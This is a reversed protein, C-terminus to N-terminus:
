YPEDDNSEDRNEDKYVENRKSYYEGPKIILIVAPCMMIIDVAGSLYVKGQVRECSCISFIGGVVDDIKEADARKGKYESILFM